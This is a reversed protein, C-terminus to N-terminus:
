KQCAAIGPKLECILKSLENIQKQQREIQTQQADPQQRVDSNEKQQREIIEQQDAAIRTLYLTIKDYRIGEPKGEADYNVLPKLGLADFEEAIFGIEWRNPKGPRTYTKPAAFLLRSFDANLPMINEKFRRSSSDQFFQNSASDWQVNQYNGSPVSSVTLTGIVSIGSGTRLGL